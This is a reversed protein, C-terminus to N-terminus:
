DIPSITVTESIFTNDNIIGEVYLNINSNYQNPIKFFINGDKDAKLNPQWSITGYETFFRSNYDQYIPTYFKKSSNFTLPFNYSERDNKDISNAQTKKFPDTVIKIVGGGGRLGYGIGSKNIEIYDVINLPFNNLFGFDAIQVDDIIVLPINNNPTSPNPNVITLEGGFDSTIFGRGSLYSALTQGGRSTTDDFVDVTGFTRNKIKEIRTEETKTNLVIGDLVEVDSVNDFVPSEFYKYKLDTQNKNFPIKYNDISFEPVQSPYFQLELDPKQTINRKKLLSIFYQENDEPFLNTQTFADDTENPTFIETKNNKLPYVLFGERAKGKITAVVNIGEEFKNSFDIEKFVEKWDFSSWGQTILLNDLDYKEKEFNFGAFYYNANEIFGRVYPELYTQSLINSNFRYSNTNKPLVSISLNQVKQLDISKNIKLEITTSDTALTQKELNIKATSIGNYNFYLRELIPIEKKADFLTFINIGPSLDEANIIKSVQLQNDFKFSITKIKKNGDHVAIFYTKDKVLDLTENNIFFSLGVKERLNSLSLSIGLKEINEIEKELLTEDKEIVVSYSQGFSPILPVKAIGFQNLQFESIIIDNSMLKGKAFSLGFGQKNKVVIGLNNNTKSILHGAEPLVQITFEEKELSNTANNNALVLFSQEYYNRENFNLMWNTYARFTYVGPTFSSDIKFTNHALGKKVQILKEKVIKNKDNSITCYLNHTITLASKNSKDIVYASFGLMENNLLTSKNLHAYVLERTTFGSDEYSSVINEEVTQAKSSFSYFLSFAIFFNLILLKNKKM